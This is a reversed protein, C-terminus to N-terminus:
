LPLISVCQKIRIFLFRAWIGAALVALQCSADKAGSDNTFVAPSKTGPQPKPAQARSNRTSMRSSRQFPGRARSM